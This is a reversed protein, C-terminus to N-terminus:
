QKLLIEIDKQLESPKTSPSYREKVIGDKSVLFKTFNWKISTSGFIGRAENKLYKYLYIAEQTNVKVKSFLDFTVGYNLKCFEKIEENTGPEQKSFENSPFALIMFDDEKYKTFLKELGEYQSTFTCKSAVNVILLVKNKYKSMTIQNNNIDKVKFDYIEVEKGQANLFTLCILLILLKYHKNQM